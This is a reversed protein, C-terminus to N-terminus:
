GRRLNHKGACKCTRFSDTFYSARKCAFPQLRREALVSLTFSCHFHGCLDFGNTASLYQVRAAIGCDLHIHQELAADHPSRCYGAAGACTLVLGALEAVAVLSNVQALADELGDSVDISLDSGGYRAHVCAVLGADVILHDFGVARRRLRVEAGVGYQANRHSGGACRRNGGALGEVLVDAAVLGDSQGHRHHVDQVASLVGVTRDVELLEHNLRPAGLAEGFAKSHASFDEM